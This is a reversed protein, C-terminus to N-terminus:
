RDAWSHPRPTCLSVAPKALVVPPMPWVSVKPSRPVLRGARQFVDDLSLFSLLQQAEMLLGKPTAPIDM